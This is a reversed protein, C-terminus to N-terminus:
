QRSTRTKRDLIVDDPLKELYKPSFEGVIPVKGVEESDIILTNFMM